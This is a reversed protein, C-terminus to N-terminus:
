SNFAERLTKIEEAFQRSQEGGVDLSELVQEIATRAKSITDRSIMEGHQFGWTYAQECAACLARVEDSPGAVSVPVEKVAESECLMNQCYEEM